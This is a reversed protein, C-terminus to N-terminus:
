TKRMNPAYVLEREKEEEPEIYEVHKWTAKVTGDWFGVAKRRKIERRAEKTTSIDKALEALEADTKQLYTYDM